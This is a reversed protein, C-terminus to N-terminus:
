QQVVQPPQTVGALNGLHRDEQVARHRDVGAVQEVGVSGIVPEWRRHAILHTPYRRVGPISLRGFPDRGITSRLDYDGGATHGGSTTDQMVEFCESVIGAVGHEEGPELRSASAAPGEEM